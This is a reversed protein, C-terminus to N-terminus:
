EGIINLYKKSTKREKEKGNGEKGEGEKSEERGNEKEGEGAWKETMREKERERSNM